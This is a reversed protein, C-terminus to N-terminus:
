GSYAELNVILHDLNGTASPWMRIDGRITYTKVGYRVRDGAMVDADAPMYCTYGDTIGLVRGDESLSTSTPQMSCGAIEKEDTNDWDPIVSGRSEKTGPRIRTVTQNCWNPLFRFM